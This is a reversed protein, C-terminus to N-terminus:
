GETRAAALLRNVDSQVRAQIASISATGDLRLFRDPEQRALRDYAAAVREYFGDSAGEMRDPGADSRNRRALATGADVEVLYTRDPVLGGTARQHLSNLWDIDVDEVAVDRGAGQYATSSDYFRDCIVIRGENLAPRIKERCLQARAASFLLLEAMPEVQVDENLLLSRIKESLDTGGPERVMLPNQGAESLYDHLLRAQTSKGSGDIGEFSILVM